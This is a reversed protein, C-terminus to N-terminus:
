LGGPQLHWARQGYFESPSSDAFRRTRERGVAQVVREPAEHVQLVDAATYAGSVPSYTVDHASESDSGPDVLSLECLNPLHALAPALRYLGAMGVANGELYLGELGSLCALAPVLAVAGVATLENSEM